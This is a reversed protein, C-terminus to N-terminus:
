VILGFGDEVAEEAAGPGGAQAPNAWDGIGADDARNEIQPAGIDAVPERLAAERASSLELALGSKWRLLSRRATM